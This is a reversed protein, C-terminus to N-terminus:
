FAGEFIMRNGVNTIHAEKLSMTKAPESRERGKNQKRVPVYAAPTERIDFIGM